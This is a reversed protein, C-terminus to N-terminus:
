IIMENVTTTELECIQVLFVMAGFCVTKSCALLTQEVSHQEASRCRRQRAATEPMLSPM